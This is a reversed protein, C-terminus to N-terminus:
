IGALLARAIDLQEARSGAFHATSFQGSYDDFVSGIKNYTNDVVAHPIGLLTCLIHAHLRDVIGVRGRSLIKVASRLNVAAIARDAVECASTFLTKTARPVRRYARAPLSALTYAISLGRDMGSYWDTPSLEQPLAESGDTSERDERHIVAFDDHAGSRHLEGHGFALDPCYVTSVDPVAERARRLSGKDRVMLTVNGHAALVRNTHTANATDRFWVSQPLIVFTTEADQSIIRERFQHPGDWLDGFNGGGQFLVVSGKRARRYRGADFDGASSAYAVSVGLQCLYRRTGTWILSDGANRDHPFGLLVARRFNQAFTRRLTERTMSQIETLVATDHDNM